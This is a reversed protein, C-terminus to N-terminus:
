IPSSPGDPGLYMPPRWSVATHNDRSSGVRSSCWRSLETLSTVSGCCCLVACCSLRADAGRRGGWARSVVDSPDHSCPCRSRVGFGSEAVMAAQCQHRCRLAVSAGRPGGRVGETAGSRGAAGRGDPKLEASEIVTHEIGLVRRWVRTTRV